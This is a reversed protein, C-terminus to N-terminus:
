LRQSFCHLVFFEPDANGTVADDSLASPHENVFVGIQLRNGYAILVELFSGGHEIAHSAVRMIQLEQLFGQINQEDAQGVVKGRLHRDGAQFFLQVNETFLRRPSIHLIDFVDHFYFIFSDIYQKLVTEVM